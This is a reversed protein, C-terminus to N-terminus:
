GTILLFQYIFVGAREGNPPSPSVPKMSAALKEENVKLELLGCHRSAQYYVEEQNAEMGKESRLM